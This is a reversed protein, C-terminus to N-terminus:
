RPNNIPLEEYEHSRYAISDPRMARMEVGGPKRFGPGVAMDPSKVPSHGPSTTWGSGGDPQFHVSNKSSQSHESLRSDRPPSLGTQNIDM